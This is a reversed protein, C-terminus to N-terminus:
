GDPVFINKPRKLFKPEVLKEEFPRIKKSRKPLPGDLDVNRVKSIKNWDLNSTDPRVTAPWNDGYASMNGDPLFIERFNALKERFQRAEKSKGVGVFKARKCQGPREQQQFLENLIHVWLSQDGQNDTDAHNGAVRVIQTRIRSCVVTKKQLIYSWVILILM